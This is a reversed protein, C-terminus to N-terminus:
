SEKNYDNTSGVIAVIFVAAFIAFGEIWALYNSLYIIKGHSREDDDKAFGM